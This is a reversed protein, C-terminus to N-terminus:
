LKREPFFMLDFNWNVGPRRMGFSDESDRSLCVIIQLLVSGKHFREVEIKLLLLLTNDGGEALGKPAVVTM